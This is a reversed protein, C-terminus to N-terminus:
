EILNFIKGYKLEDFISKIQLAKESSTILAGIEVNGDLGHYSLNASSVFAKSDDVIITKAHLAAMKDDSKGKYEYVKLFHRNKHNIEMLHLKVTDYKNVFLEVVVGERSRKDILKLMEEFHDSISYGTLFISKSAGNILEEIVPRTKRVKTRFSLPTTAVIEVKEDGDKALLTSVLQCFMIADSESISPMKNKLLRIASSEDSRYLHDSLEDALIDMKLNQNWM